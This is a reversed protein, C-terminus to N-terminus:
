IFYEDASINYHTCLIRVQNLTLARKGNMKLSASTVTIGLVEAIESLKINHEACYGRFKNPM